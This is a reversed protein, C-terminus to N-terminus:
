LQKDTPLIIKDHMEGVIRYGESSPNALWCKRVSVAHITLPMDVGAEMHPSECNEGAVGPITSYCYIEMGPRNAVFRATLTDM